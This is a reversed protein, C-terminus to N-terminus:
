FCVFSLFSSVSLLISCAKGKGKVYKNAVADVLYKVNCPFCHNFPVNLCAHFIAGTLEYKKKNLWLFVFRGPKESAVHHFLSVKVQWSADQIPRLATFYVTFELPDEVPCLASDRAFEIRTVEICEEPEEDEHSAGSKGEFRSKGEM